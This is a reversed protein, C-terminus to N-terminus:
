LEKNFGFSNETEEVEDHVKEVEKKKRVVKVPKLLEFRDKVQEHLLEDAKKNLLRLTTKENFGGEKILLKKMTELDDECFFDSLFLTACQELLKEQVETLENGM